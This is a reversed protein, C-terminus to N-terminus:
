CRSWGTRPSHRQMTTFALPPARPRWCPRWRPPTTRGLSASAATMAKATASYNNVWGPGLGSPNYARGRSAYHRSVTIGRPEPGGLSLDVHNMQFAGTEMAVPDGHKADDLSPNRRSQGHAVDAVYPPNVAANSQSVQGGFYYGNIYSSSTGAPGWLMLGFGGWDGNGVWNWSRPLLLTNGQVIFQDLLDLDGSYYYNLDLYPRIGAWNGGNALFIVQGNTSAVELMKVTSAGLLNTSQLQEIVAHEAASEFYSATDTFRYVQARDPADAGTTPAHGAYTMFRDFYYGNGPEQNLRGLSYFTQPLVGMQAAIAQDVAWSELLLTLGMVNMTESVVPLSDDTLGQQRYVDLRDQRQQLWGWDPEFGYLITNTSGLSQFYRTSSGDASSSDVFTNNNTDWTGHKLDVSFDVPEWPTFYVWNELVVDDEQWLTAWGNDDFTLTLRQGQLEPWYWQHSEYGGLYNYFGVTLTAMLDTPQNAWNLVPMQGGWEHTPFLLSQPLATNTTPVIQWGGLVQEVSANPCNSQIYGLLSTTCSTLNSRVAAENLGYVYDNTYTGGAARMLANSSFGTATALNIGSIPESVKFAPDLYYVTAGNTLTVWVRQFGFLNEGWIAATGNTPYHRYNQFLFRLYDATHTWNTNVLNLRLWHRLDRHDSSEYPLEMWGFQYGTNTYGAARLLAVLLACQDFDNGSKELLTLAAGKKSGFYLVHQIHDHVYNFIRVPDNELGRALAQIEPTSAEAIAPQAQAQCAVLTALLGAILFRITGM